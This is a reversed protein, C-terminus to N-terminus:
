SVTPHSREGSCLKIHRSFTCQALEPEKLVGEPEQQSSHSCHLGWWVLDGRVSAVNRHRVMGPCSLSAPQTTLGCGEYAAKGFQIHSSSRTPREPVLVNHQLGERQALCLQLCRLRGAAGKQVSSPLMCRVTTRWAHCWSAEGAQWAGDQVARCTVRVKRSESRSGSRSGRRCLCMTRCSGSRRQSPWGSPTTTSPQRLPGRQILTRQGRRRPWSKVAPVTCSMSIPTLTLLGCLVASRKSSGCGMVPLLPVARYCTATVSHSLAARAAHWCLVWTALSAVAPDTRPVPKSRLARLSWALKWSCAVRGLSTEPAQQQEWRGAMADVPGHSEQEVVSAGVASACAQRKARQLEGLREQIPVYNALRQANTKPAFTCDRLAAQEAELKLKEWQM